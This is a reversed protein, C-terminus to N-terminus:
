DDTEEQERGPGDAVPGPEDPREHEVPPTWRLVHVRAPVTVRGDAVDRYGDSVVECVAGDQAPEQAPVQRVARHERASFADGVAPQIPVSGCRELALEASLAFSELLEIMQERTVGAPLTRAQRLLDGRLHQLDTVVPRLLTAHEGVRLREVEQHLWDIARERAQARANNAGIQETLEVLTAALPDDGHPSDATETPQSLDLEPTVATDVSEPHHATEIEDHVIEM